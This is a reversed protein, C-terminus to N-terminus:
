NSNPDPALGLISLSLKARVPADMLRDSIDKARPVILQTRWGSVKERLRKLPVVLMQRQGNFIM